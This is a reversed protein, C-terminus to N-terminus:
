FFPSLNKTLIITMDFLLMREVIEFGYPNSTTRRLIDSRTGVWHDTDRELRTRYVYFNSEVKFEDPKDSPRVRINTILHRTRSPPDESWAMNTHLREVRKAMFDRDDDFHASTGRESIERSRERYSRNSRVPAWYRADAALLALWDDFRLGDILAVEDYLFQEIEHQTHADVLARPTVKHGLSTDASLMEIDM